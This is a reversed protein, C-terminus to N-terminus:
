IESMPRQRESLYKLCIHTQKNLCCGWEKLVDTVVDVQYEMAEKFILQEDVSLLTFEMGGSDGQKVKDNWVTLELCVWVFGLSNCVPRNGFGEFLELMEEAEVVEIFTWWFNNGGLECFEGRGGNWQYPYWFCISGEAFKFLQERSLRNEDM